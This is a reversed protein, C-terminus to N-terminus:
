SAPEGIRDALLGVSAAFYTSRNWKMIVKFNGNTLYASGGPGDPAVLAAPPGAALEGGDANRLGLRRWEEISRDTKWDILQESFGPPLIVARGWGQSVQWGSRALYNAISAFVDAQKTWIDPHGGGQFDVAYRLFSSPMFQTQGMAGAWSGTMLEPAIDKRDLIRLADLLEARFMDKRGSGYALTALSGVVPYGGTFRGYDTEVGWLAVIFRPEVGYAKGVQELLPRYEDLMQRGAAVRQDTVTRDRYQVFTLTFEPQKSDLVLVEPIPQLHDLAKDLTPQSVGQAAADQRVGGLWAAFADPNVVPVAVTPRSAPTPAPKGACGALVLLLAAAVIRGAGAFRLVLLM